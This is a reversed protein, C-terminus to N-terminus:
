DDSGVKTLCCYDATKEDVIIGVEFQRTMSELRAGQNVVPGFVGVKAQRPTGIQGAIATGHAVGVGIDFGELSGGPINEAKFRAHLALAARCADVPGDALAVPWGWFGLAADGQFDAITGEFDIIADTMAALARRVCALLGHLDDQFQESKRSFGRVDCFLVTIDQKAPALASEGAATTLSEVVRPSFFSSFKTKQEELLRLQRVSGVFQAMLETFRIDGGLDAKTIPDVEQDAAGSVYLCWGYSAENLIPVCYAWNLGEM